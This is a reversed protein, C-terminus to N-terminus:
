NSHTYLQLSDEVHWASIQLETTESLLSKLSAQNGTHTPIDLTVLRLKSYVLKRQISQMLQSKSSWQKFSWFHTPLHVCKSLSVGCHRVNKQNRSYVSVHMFVIELLATM